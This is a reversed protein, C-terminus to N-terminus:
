RRASQFASPAPLVDSYGQSFQGRAADWTWATRRLGSPCCNPENPRYDAELVLVTSGNVQISGKYANALLVPIVANVGPPSRLVAVNLVGGTGDNRALWLLMPKGDGAFDHLSLRETRTFPQLAQQYFVQWQGGRQAFLRLTDATGGGQAQRTLVAVVPTGDGRINASALCVIQESASIAAPFFNRVGEWNAVGFRKLDFNDCVQYGYVTLPQITQLERVTDVLWGRSLNGRGDRIEVPWWTYLDTLAPGDAIRVQTGVNLTATIANGRGPASYLSMPNTVVQLTASRDAFPTIATQDAPYLTGDDPSLWVTQGGIRIQMWQRGEADRRTGDWTFRNGNGIERVFAAGFSPAAYARLPTPSLVELVLEAGSQARTPAAHFPLLAVLALALIFLKRVM